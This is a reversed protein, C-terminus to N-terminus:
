DPRGAEPVEDLSGPERPDDVGARRYGVPDIGYSLRFARALAAPGGYGVGQAIVKVPLRTTALLRAATRLRVTQVFDMPGHQFARSFHDAFSARSMGAAAALSAVSHRGAPNELVALVARALRPHHLAAALGPGAGEELHRRLLAVLCQKMLLETMAQTGLGPRALEARMLAFAQSTVPDTSVEKVLPERLLDFLGLASAYSASIAGCLLLVDRSGDGATFTVLGDGLLSCRDEARVSGAVPGTGGIQHAQRPPVVLISGSAFPLWPGNGVSLAGAGDLVYHVTIAEFGPFELRWHKQLACVSFAHLRVSLAALLRDLVDTAM